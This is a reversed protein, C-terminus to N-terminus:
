FCYIGAVIQDRLVKRDRTFGVLAHLFTYGQSSQTKEELEARDLSLAREIIPEIFDNITKLGANYSRRPILKNFPGVLSILYQIKQVKVFAKSFRTQPNLLADASEGLM